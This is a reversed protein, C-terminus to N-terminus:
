KIKTFKVTEINTTGNIECFYIGPKYGNTNIEISTTSNTIKQNEIVRGAVDMIRIRKIDNSNKFVINIKDKAPNPYLTAKSSSINITNSPPPAIPTLHFWINDHIMIDAGGSTWAMGPYYQGNWGLSSNNYQIDSTVTMNYNEYNGGNPAPDAMTSPDKDTSYLVVFSNRPNVVNSLEATALTDGSNYTNGPVFTYTASVLGGNPLNLPPDIVFQQYRVSDPHTEDADTLDYEITKFANKGKNNLYDYELNYFTGGGTFSGSTIGSPTSYVQVILKDPNQTQPRLYQYPFQITDLTFGDGSEFFEADGTNFFNLSTPDVIQGRSHRSINYYTTDGTADDIYADIMASDVHIVSGYSSYDSSLTEVEKGYNFWGGDSKINNKPYYNETVKQDNNQHEQAAIQGFSSNSSIIILLSLLLTKKM